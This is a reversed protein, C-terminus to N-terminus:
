GFLGKIEITKCLVLSYLKDWAFIFWGLFLIVNPVRFDFDKNTM